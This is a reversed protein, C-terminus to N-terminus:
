ITAIAKATPYSYRDVAVHVCRVEYCSGLRCVTHYACVSPLHHYLAPTCAIMPCTMTNAICSRIVAIGVVFDSLPRRKSTPPTFCRCGDLRRDTFMGWPSGSMFRVVRVSAGFAHPPLNSRFKGKVVGSNGHPRTVRRQPNFDKLWRALRGSRVPSVGLHRPGEVGPDGAQGPLRIRCASPACSSVTFRLGFTPADSSLACRALTSSLRRRTQSVRLRFSRPTPAPTASPASTASSAVRRTFDAAGNRSGPHECNALQSALSM